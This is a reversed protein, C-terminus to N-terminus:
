DEALMVAVSIRIEERRTVLNVTNRHKNQGSIVSKLAM